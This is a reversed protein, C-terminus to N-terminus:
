IIIFIPLFFIYLWNYNSKKWLLSSILHFSFTILVAPFNLSFFICSLMGQILLSACESASIGFFSTNAPLVPLALVLSCVKLIIFLALSIQETRMQSSVRWLPNTDTDLKHLQLASHSTWIDFQPFHWLWLIHFCFTSNFLVSLIFSHLPLLVLIGPLWTNLYMSRHYHPYMGHHIFDNPM